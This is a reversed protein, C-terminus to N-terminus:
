DKLESFEDYTPIVYENQDDKIWLKNDPSSPQSNSVEVLHERAVADKVNYVTNGIKISPINPM